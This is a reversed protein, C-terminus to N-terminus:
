VTGDKAASVREGGGAALTNRETNGKKPLATLPEACATYDKVYERYFDCLGLVSRLERNILQHNVGKTAVVKNPDPYHTGSRKVHGVFTISRRAMQCMRHTLEGAQETAGNESLACTIEAEIGTQAEDICKRARAGCAVDNGRACPCCARRFVLKGVRRSRWRRM